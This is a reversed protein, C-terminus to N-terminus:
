AKGLVELRKQIRENAMKLQGQKLQEVAKIGFAECFKAEPLEAEVIGARIIEIQAPTCVLNDTSVEAPKDKEASPLDEGRYIYLGLGTATSINKALCRMANDSIARADPNKIAKNKYDMVPLWMKRTVEEGGDRITLVTWVMVSGDPYEQADMQWSTDPYKDMLVQVANAWSLYTLTGKKDTMKTVDMQSFDDWLRQALSKKQTM